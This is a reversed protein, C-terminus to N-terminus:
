VSIWPYKGKLKEAIELSKDKSADDVIVLELELGFDQQCKERLFLIKRELLHELSNEENYCPVILSFKKFNNTM